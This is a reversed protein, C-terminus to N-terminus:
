IYVEVNIDFWKHYRDRSSYNTYKKALEKTFLIEGIKVARQTNSGAGCQAFQPTIIVEHNRKTGSITTTIVNPISRLKWKFTNNDVTINEVMADIIYDPVKNEVPYDLLTQLYEKLLEIREPLSLKDEKNNKIEKLQEEISSIETEYEQRKIAFQHQTIEGGTRMEILNFLKNNYKNLKNKLDGIIADNNNEVGISKSLEKVAIDIVEEKDITLSKFIMVAMAELKWGSITPTTCVGEISLGKNLRTKVTGTQVSSYCQYGYSVKGSKTDKHWQRRNFSHGCVCKLKRCWVDPSQKVNSQGGNNVRSSNLRRQADEWEELTVIPEHTGKVEFQEKEGHNNIKKQELFNPVYQKYWVHYGAYFKNKLIRSIVSCSWNEKGMATKRKAKELEFQIKRIGNGSNYLRYIMRITEAQEPNIVMQDGVKDYGLISGNQFNVGKEMSARQGAKVRISTKRSEDQALTAMITLRLEGDTDFTWINDEVFYVEVGIKSLNRTYQLTDVTNRAFRSVERTIILDFTGDNADEIMQMFQPRKTASTGTIGRDIYKAVVIWNPYTQLIINYWDIQNDLAYIQAEHETSVRAYIAVNRYENNNIRM